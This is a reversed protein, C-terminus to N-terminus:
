KVSGIKAASTEGYQAALATVTQTARDSQWGAGVLLGVLGECFTNIANERLMNGYHADTIQTLALANMGFSLAWSGLNLTRGSEGSQADLGLDQWAQDLFDQFMRTISGIQALLSQHRGVTARQWISPAFALYEAEFLAPNEISFRIDLLSAIIFKEIASGDHRRATEFFATRRAGARIAIGLLLDEKSAFHAYLTGVSLDAAKALDSMKLDLFGFEAIQDQARDLIMEERKQRKESRVM